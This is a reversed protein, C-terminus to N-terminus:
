VGAKSLAILAVAVLRMVGSVILLAYNDRGRIEGFALVGWMAGVLGPLSTLIPFTISFSLKSNAVFWCVQAVGWMLGSLFAPLM